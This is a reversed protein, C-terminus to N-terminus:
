PRWMGITMGGDIVLAHGTLWRAEDSALFVYGNALDTAEGLGLPHYRLIANRAATPDPQESFVRKVLPTETVGPCICNARIGSPAGELAMCKTLAIVGAKSACYAGQGADGWLGIVSATSLVCGRSEALHPWAAKATLYVGKLNTAMGDDWADEELEHVAGFIGKGANCVAVDLGGLQEVAFAIGADVSARSRVDVDVDGGALDATIVHAGEQRFRGATAAGIGSAGGTVFARKGQLRGVGLASTPTAQDM